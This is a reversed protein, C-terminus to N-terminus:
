KSEFRKYLRAGPKWDIKTVRDYKWIRQTVGEHQLVKWVEDSESDLCFIMLGWKKYKGPVPAGFKLFRIRHQAVYQSLRQVLGVIQEENGFVMLKGGHADWGKPQKHGTRPEICTWYEEKRIIVESPEEQQMKHEKHSDYYM